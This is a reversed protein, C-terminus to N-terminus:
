HPIPYISDAKGRRIRHDELAARLADAALVAAHMKLSPLGGLAQAVAESGLAGAEALATGAVLETLMSGAAISAACGFTRFSARLVRGGQIELYLQMEDGCAANEARGVANAGELAGANRPHQYHDLV